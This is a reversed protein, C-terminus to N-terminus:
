ISFDVDFNYYEILGLVKCNVINKSSVIKADLFKIYYKFFKTYM